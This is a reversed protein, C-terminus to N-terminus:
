PYEALLDSLYRFIERVDDSKIYESFHPMTVRESQLMHQINPILQKDTHSKIYATDFSLMEINRFGIIEKEDDNLTVMQMPSGNVGHCAACFRDYNEYGPSLHRVYSIISEIEKAKLIDGTGPMANKGKTIIQMLEKNDHQAQYESDSLDALPGPMRSALSGDGHGYLGHCSVCLEEYVKQGAEITEWDTTPLKKIYALLATVKADAQSGVNDTLQFKLLSGSLVWDVFPNASKEALLEHRLLIPTPTDMYKAGQGNGRGEWGHCDACYHIYLAEGKSFKRTQITSPPHHPLAETNQAPPVERITEPSIAVSEPSCVMLLFPMLIISWKM